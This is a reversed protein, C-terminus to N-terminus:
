GDGEDAAGKSGGGEGAEPARPGGKGAVTVWRRGLGEGERGEGAAGVRQRGGVAAELM